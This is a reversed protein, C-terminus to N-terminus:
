ENKNKPKASMTISCLRIENSGGFDFLCKYCPIEGLIGEETTYYGDEKWYKQMTFFRTKHECPLSKEIRDNCCESLDRAADLWNDKLLNEYRKVGNLLDYNFFMQWVYEQTLEYDLDICKHEVAINFVSLGRGNKVISTKLNWYKELEKDYNKKQPLPPIISLLPLGGMVKLANRRNINM